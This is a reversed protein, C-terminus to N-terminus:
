SNWCSIKIKAEIDANNRGLPTPPSPMTPFANYLQCLQSNCLKIEYSWHEVDKTQIYWGKVYKLTMFVKHSSLLTFLPIVISCGWLVSWLLDYNPISVLLHASKANLSQLWVKPQILFSVTSLLSCASFIKRNEPLIYSGPYGPM